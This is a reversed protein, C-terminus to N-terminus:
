SLLAGANSVAITRLAQLLRIFFPRDSIAIGATPIMSDSMKLALPTANVMSGPAVGWPKTYGLRWRQFRNVKLRIGPALYGLSFHYPAKPALCM